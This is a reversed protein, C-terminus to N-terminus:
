RTAAEAWQRGIILKGWLRAAPKGARRNGPSADAGAANGEGGRRCVRSIQNGAGRSNHRPHHHRYHRLYHPPPSASSPPPAPLINITIIPTTTTTIINITINGRSSIIYYHHHYCYYSYHYHIPLSLSLFDKLM